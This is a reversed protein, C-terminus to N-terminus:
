WVVHHGALTCRVGTGERSENYGRVSAPPQGCEVCGRRYKGCISINSLQSDIYPGCMSSNALDLISGRGRHDLLTCIEKDGEGTINSQWLTM